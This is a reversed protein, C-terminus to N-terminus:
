AGQLRVETNLVDAQETLETADPDTGVRDLLDKRSILVLGASDSAIRVHGAELVLRADAVGSDLLERLIQATIESGSAHGSGSQEFNPSQAQKDTGM